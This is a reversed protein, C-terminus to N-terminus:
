LRIRWLVFACVSGVLLCSRPSLAIVAFFIAITCQTSLLAHIFKSLLSFVHERESSPLHSLSICVLSLFSRRKHWSRKRLGNRWKRKQRSTWTDQSTHYIVCYSIHPLYCLCLSVLASLFPLLSCLSLLDSLLTLPSFLSFTFFSLSFTFFSFYQRGVAGGLPIIIM